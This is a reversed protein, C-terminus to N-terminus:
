VPRDGSLQTRRMLRRYRGDFSDRRHMSCRNDWMVVDGARWQHHWSFVQQTAHEWLRDLLAESEAVPLGTIYSGARRGLFLAKRGSGAHTRILPHIPGPGQSVDNLHAYEPRREGGSSFTPDHKASKGEIAARLDAPMAELALYMNLFGTDGGSPPVEIGRLISAAPPVEVFNSDTHWAAEGDGLEGIPKGDAQINSIIAIEPPTDPPRGAVHPRKLLNNPGLETPGFQRTFALQQEDSLSQGRFLLILREHWIDRLAAVTDRDIPQSLDLGRIEVGLPADILRIDLTSQKGGHMTDTNMKPDGNIRRANRRLRDM